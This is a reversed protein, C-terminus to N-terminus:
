MQLVRNVQSKSNVTYNLRRTKDRSIECRQYTTHTTATLFIVVGGGGYQCLKRKINM